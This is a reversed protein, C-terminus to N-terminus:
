KKDTDSLNKLYREIDPAFEQPSDLDQQAVPLLHAKRGLLDHDAEVAQIAIGSRKGIHQRRPQSHDRAVFVVVQQVECHHLRHQRSRGGGGAGVWFALHGAREKITRGDRKGWRSWRHAQEHRGM